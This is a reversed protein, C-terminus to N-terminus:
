PTRGKKERKVKREGTEAAVYGSGMVGLGSKNRAIFDGATTQPIPAPPM